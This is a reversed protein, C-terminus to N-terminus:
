GKKIFIIYNSLIFIISVWKETIKINKGDTEIEIYVGIPIGDEKLSTTPSGVIYHTINNETARKPGHQHGSFIAVVNKDNYIIKRVDDKNKM